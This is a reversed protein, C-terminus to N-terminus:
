RAFDSRYQHHRRYQARQRLAMLYDNCDKGCVPPEDRITYRDGLQESIMKSANRGAADNDLHLAITDVESHNNLARTLASPIKGKKGAASAYVGGLSVMPEARWNGTRMKMVTAYSLLDVASEFAHITHGNTEIRFSYSKDSGSADGMIRAGGTARYCAFRAKGVEDYGVFVVNHYPLSEYILGENICDLIIERDIGRGTLYRILEHNTGSREPLILKKEKPAAHEYHKATEMCPTIKEETLIKMADMFTMGKVKTLYDLASRGGFGRSWWMWKGDAAIKLSDHTRTTFTDGRLHILEYPEYAQLYTLLDIARVKRIQEETYYKSM